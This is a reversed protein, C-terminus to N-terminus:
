THAGIYTILVCFLSDRRGVAWVLPIWFSNRPVRQKLSEALVNGKYYFQYVSHCM